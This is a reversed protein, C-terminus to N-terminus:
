LEETVWLGEDEWNRKKWLEGYEGMIGKRGCNGQEKGRNGQGAIKQERGYARTEGVIGWQEWLERELQREQLRKNGGSTGIREWM